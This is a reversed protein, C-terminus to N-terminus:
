HRREQPLPEAAQRPKHLGPWEPLRQQANPAPRQKDERLSPLLLAAYRANNAYVLTGPFCVGKDVGDNFDPEM